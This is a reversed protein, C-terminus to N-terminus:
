PSPLEVVRGASEGDRWLDAPECSCQRRHAHVRDPDLKRQRRDQECSGTRRRVQAHGLGFGSGPWRSGAPGSDANIRVRSGAPIYVMPAADAISKREPVDVTWRGFAGEAEISVPGTYFDLSVEEEATEFSHERVNGGLEVITFSLYKLDRGRQVLPYVGPADGPSKLHLNM